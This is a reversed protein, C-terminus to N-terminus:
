ENDLKNQRVKTVRWHARFVQTLKNEAKNRRDCEEQALAPEIFFGVEPVISYKGGHFGIELLYITKM